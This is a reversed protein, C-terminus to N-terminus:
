RFLHGQKSSELSCRITLTQNTLTTQKNSQNPKNPNPRLSSKFFCVSKDYQIM